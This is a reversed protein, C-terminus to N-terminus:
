VLLLSIFVVKSDLAECVLHPFDFVSQDISPYHLPDKVM